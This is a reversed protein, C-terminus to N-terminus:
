APQRTSATSTNKRAMWDELVSIAAACRAKHIDSAGLSEIEQRAWRVAADNMAHADAGAELLVKVTGANGREAADCLLVDLYKGDPEAGSKLLMRVIDAHDQEEALCLANFKATVGVGAGLLAEVADRRGAWAAKQIEEDLHIAGVAAAARYCYTRLIQELDGAAQFLDDGADGAAKFAQGFSFKM